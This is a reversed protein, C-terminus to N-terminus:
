EDDDKAEPKGTAQPMAPQPNPSRQEYDQVFFAFSMPEIGNKECRAKHALYLNEVRQMKDDQEEDRQVRIDEQWHLSRRAAINALTTTGMKLNERDEQHQRWIDPTM